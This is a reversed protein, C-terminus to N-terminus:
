LISTLSIAFTVTTTSVNGVIALPVDFIDRKITFCFACPVHRGEPTLLTCTTQVSQHSNDFAHTCFQEWYAVASRVDMLEYIYTPKGLLQERTWQTLLTFEKGVLSILGTRRWIVTPTGSYNILKEFELLTRQFCREMFILDERTLNMILAILSPRISAMARCVRMMDEKSM